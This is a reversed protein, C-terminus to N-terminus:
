LCECAGSAGEMLPPEFVLRAKKPPTDRWSLAINWAWKEPPVKAAVLLRFTKTMQPHLEHALHYVEEPAKVQCKGENDFAYEYLGAGECMIKAFGNGITTEGSNTFSVEVACQLDNKGAPPFTEIRLGPPVRGFKVGVHVRSASKPYFLLKLVSPSCEQCSDGMRLFYRRGMNESRHPKLPSEPILCVVFGEKGQPSIPVAVIEVRPVPPDTAHRHLEQLRTKLQFVDQVLEVGQVADIETVQDKDAVIGWVLVGGENNAFGGLAKSWIEPIDNKKSKGSKFDLWESEFVKPMEAPLGMLIEVAKEGTFREFYFQAQSLLPEM